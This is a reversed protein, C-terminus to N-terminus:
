LVPLLCSLTPIFFQVCVQSVEDRDNDDAAASDRKTEHDEDAYVDRIFAVDQQEDRNISSLVDVAKTNIDDNHDVIDDNDYDNDYEEVSAVVALGVNDEQDMM